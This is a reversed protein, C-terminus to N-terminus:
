FPLLSSILYDSESITVDQDYRVNFKFEYSLNHPKDSSDDVSFSDFSGIYIHEDYYIYLSFSLIPIGPDAEPGSFIRGNNKYILVLSLLNAYSLSHIRNFNTLGGSGDSGVVYQGATVGNAEISIPREIWNHVIHGQRGKVSTDSSTSYRRVFSSPNILFVLPPTNQLIQIQRRLAETQVAALRQREANALQINRGYEFQLPDVPVNAMMVSRDGVSPDSGPGPLFSSEIPLGGFTGQYMGCQKDIRNKYDDGGEHFDQGVRRSQGIGRSPLLANNYDTSSQANLTNPWKEALLAMHHTAAETLNGYSIFATQYPRGQADHDTGIFYSGTNRGAHISSMNFNKTYFNGTGSYGNELAVQAYQLCLQDPTPLRGTIKVYADILAQRLEAPGVPQITQAEKGRPPSPLFNAAKINSTDVPGISPGSSPSINSLTTDNRAVPIFNVENDPPIFGVIFPKANRRSATFTGFTESNSDALGLSIQRELLGLSFLLSPAPTVIQDLFRVM